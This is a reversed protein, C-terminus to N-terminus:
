DAKSSAAGGATRAGSHASPGESRQAWLAPTFWPASELEAAIARAAVAQAAASPHTDYPTAWWRDWNGGQAAFAPVLDFTQLGLSAAFREAKTNLPREPFNQATWTGRVFMPFAVFDVPTHRAASSDAVDRLADQFQHWGVYDDRFLPTSFRTGTPELLLNTKVTLYERLASHRIAGTAFRAPVLHHWHLYDATSSRSLDPGSPLPDNSLFQMLVLDPHFQWGLRRLLEAENRTTYGKQATNIVEFRIGPYQADLLRELRAPWVSDTSAIRDGWTYSDGLALIRM